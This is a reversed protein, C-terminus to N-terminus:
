WNECRLEGRDWLVRAVTAEFQEETITVPCHAVFFTEAGIGARFRETEGRELCREIRRSSLWPVLNFEGFSEDEVAIHVPEGSNARNELDIKLYRCSQFKDSVWDCGPLCLLGALAFTKIIWRNSRDSM